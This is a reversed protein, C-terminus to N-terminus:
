HFSNTRLFLSYRVEELSFFKVRVSRYTTLDRSYAAVEIMKGAVTSEQIFKTPQEPQASSAKKTELVGKAPQPAPGRFPVPPAVHSDEFVKLTSPKTQPVSVQPFVSGAIPLAKQLNEKTREKESPLVTWKGNVDGSAYGATDSYVAFKPKILSPDSQVSGGLSQQQVAASSVPQRNSDIEALVKRANEQDEFTFNPYVKNAKIGECIKTQFTKLAVRMKEIPAAKVRIGEELVDWARSYSKSRLDMVLSWSTWFLALGVAISNTKM